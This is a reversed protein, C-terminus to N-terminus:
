SVFYFTYCKHLQFLLILLSFSYIFYKFIYSKSGWIVSGSTWFICIPYIDFVFVYSNWILITFFSFVFLLRSPLWLLPVKVLSSHGYNSGAAWWFGHLCPSPLWITLRKKKFFASDIYFETDFSITRWYHFLFFSKGLLLQLFKNSTSMYGLFNSLFEKFSHSLM